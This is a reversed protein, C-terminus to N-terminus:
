IWRRVSQRYKEFEEGFTQLLMTEEKQIFIRDILVIFLLVVICPTISGLLLAIGILVSAMGLYMPNRSFSFVDHSVLATSEQFPKVTTEALKFQNDARVNLWLGIVLPLIGTLIWPMTIVRRFPAIFHLLVMLIIAILFYTPPLVKKM